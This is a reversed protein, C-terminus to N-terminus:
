RLTVSFSVKGVEGPHASWELRLPEGTMAQRTNWCECFRDLAKEDISRFGNPHPLKGIVPIREEKMGEGLRHKKIGAPVTSEQVSFVSRAKEVYTQPSLDAELLDKVHDVEENVMDVGETLAEVGDSRSELWSLTEKLADRELVRDDREKIKDKIVELLKKADIEIGSTMKMSTVFRHVTLEEWNCEINRGYDQLMREARDDYWQESLEPKDQKVSDGLAGDAHINLPEDQVKPQPIGDEVVLKRRHKYVQRLQDDHPFRKMMEKVAPVPIRQAVAARVASHGDQVLKGLMNVPLTRAALKRVNYNKHSALRSVLSSKFDFAPVRGTGDLVDLRENAAEALQDLPGEIIVSPGLVRSVEIRLAQTLREENVAKRVVHQLAKLNVKM